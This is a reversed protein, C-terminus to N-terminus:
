HVNSNNIFPALLARALTPKGMNEAILSFRYAAEYSFLGGNRTYVALYEEAAKDYQEIDFYLNAIEERATDKDLSEILNFAETIMGAKRYLYLRLYEDGKNGWYEQDVMEINALLIDKAKETKSWNLYLGAQISACISKDSIGSLVGKATISDGLEEYLEASLVDLFPSEGKFRTYSELINTLVKHRDIFGEGHEMFSVIEEARRAWSNMSLYDEIIRTDVKPTLLAEQIKQAFEEAEQALLCYPENVLEPLPTSVTILGSALYEYYKIPNTNVILDEMKFPIIGVDFSKMYKPVESYEKRGLVMINPENLLLTIDTYVTGVLVFQYNPNLQAVRVLLEQDFWNAIAGVYGIVPKEINEIDSPIETEQVFDDLEVANPVIICNEKHRSKHVYLTKSTVIVGDCIDLLGEEDRIVKKTQSFGTMEDVCDYFIKLRPNEQKIYELADAYEPVNNIIMTESDSFFRIFQKLFETKVNIKENNTGILYDIRNLITIDEDSNSNLFFPSFFDNPFSGNVKSETSISHSSYNLYVVRFGLQKFQLALQQPRQWLDERFRVSSLIVITKKNLERLRIYRNPDEEINRSLDKNFVSVLLYGELESKEGETLNRLWEKFGNVVNASNPIRSLFYLTEEFAISYEHLEMGIDDVFPQLTYIPLERGYDWQNTREMFWKGIRYLLSKANPNFTILIGEPKLVRKMENIAILQQEYDFHELVGSNWVVDFSDDPFDMNFIDGVTFNGRVEYSNFLKESQSIAVESFDLLCVDGGELALRLSIRGSGSGAELIRKDKINGIEKKLTEFVLQSVDDWEEVAKESWLKDWVNKQFM